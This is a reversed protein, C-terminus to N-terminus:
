QCSSFNAIITLQFIILCYTYYWRRKTLSIYKFVSFCVYVCVDMSFYRPLYVFYQCYKDRPSSIKSTRLNSKMVRIKKILYYGHMAELYANGSSSSFVLFVNWKDIGCMEVAGCVQFHPCRCRELSSFCQQQYGPFETNLPFLSGRNLLSCVTSFSYTQQTFKWM